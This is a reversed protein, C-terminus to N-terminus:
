FAPSFAGGAQLRELLRGARAKVLYSELLALKRVTDRRADMQELVRTRQGPAFGGLAQELASLVAAPGIRVMELFVQMTEAVYGFEAPTLDAERFLALGSGHHAAEDTLIGQLVTKLGDDRCSRSLLAYHDIGWGELVVQIVFQLPRRGASAIIENLLAIFPGPPEQEPAESGLAQDVSHFHRAEESAFLSYLKQEHLSEALLSMKAAFSMGAKEISWAESLRGHALAHALGERGAADLGALATVGGLDYDTLEWLEALRAVPTQPPLKKDLIREVGAESFRGSRALARRLDAEM